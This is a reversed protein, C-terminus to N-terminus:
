KAEWRLYADEPGGSPPYSRRCFVVNGQPTQFPFGESFAQDAVYCAVKDNVIPFRTTPTTYPPGDSPTSKPQALALGSLSTLVALAAVLKWM